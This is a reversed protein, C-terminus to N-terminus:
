SAEVNQTAGQIQKTLKQMVLNYILTTNNDEIVSIDDQSDIDSVVPLDSLLLSFESLILFNGIKIHNIQRYNSM